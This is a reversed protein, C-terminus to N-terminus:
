ENNEAKVFQAIQRIAGLHYANHATMAALGVVYISPWDALPIKAQETVVNLVADYANRLDQKLQEWAAPTPDALNFSSGWDAPPDQGQMRKHTLVLAFHLHAVHEAVSRHGATPARLADAPSLTAIFGLVGSDTKGDTIWSAGVDGEMTERLQQILAPIIEVQM